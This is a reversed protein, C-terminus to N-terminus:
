TVKILVRGSRHVNITVGSRNTLWLGLLSEGGRVKRQSRLDRHINSCFPGVLATETRFEEHWMWDANPQGVPEVTVAGINENQAMMGVTVVGNNGSTMIASLTCIIRTVTYGEYERGVEVERISGVDLRNTVGTGVATFSPGDSFPLWVLRRSTAM